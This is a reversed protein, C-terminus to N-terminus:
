QKMSESVSSQQSPQPRDPTGFEGRRAALLRYEEIRAAGDPLEASQLSALSHRRDRLAIAFELADVAAPFRSNFAEDLARMAMNYACLAEQRDAPTAAGLRAWAEQLDHSAQEFRVGWNPDFRPLLPMAHDRRSNPLWLCCIPAVTM